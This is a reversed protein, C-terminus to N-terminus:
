KSVSLPFVTSYEGRYLGMEELEWEVEDGDDEDVPEDDGEAPAPTAGEEEPVRHLFSDHRLRTPSSSTGRSSSPQSGQFHSSSALDLQGPFSVPRSTDTSNNLNTPGQNVTTPNSHASSHQTRWANPVAAAIATRIRSGMPHCPYEQSGFTRWTRICPQCSSLSLSPPYQRPVPVYRPESAGCMGLTVSCDFVHTLHGIGGVALVLGIMM